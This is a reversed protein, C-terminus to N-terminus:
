KNLLKEVVSSIEAEISESYGTSVDRIMGKQDVVINTPYSEVKLQQAYREMDPIITYHFPSKELLKQIAPAKDLALALFVVDKNKYQEVLKNLQPIERLCPKCAVFWFNLVMVKGKLDSTSLVKGQMDTFVSSPLMTNILTDRFLDKAEKQKKIDKDSNLIVTVATKGSPLPEMSISFTRGEVLADAEEPKLIRGAQNKFVLNTDKTSISMGQAMVTASFFLATLFLFLKNTM